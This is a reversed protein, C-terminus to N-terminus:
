NIGYKLLIKSYTGNKKMERLCKDFSELFKKKNKVRKSKKSITIFYDKSGIDYDLIKFKGQVNLKKSKWQFTAKSDATIDFRQYKGLLGKFLQKLSYAYYIEKKKKKDNIIKFLEPTFTLGDLYGFKLPGLDKLSKIKINSDSKVMFRYETRFLSEKSYILFDERKKRYSYICIDIVGKRIYINARKIPYRHFEFKIGNKRLCTEIIERGIGMPMEKDGGFFYPPWDANDIVISESSNASESIQLILFLIFCFLSIRTKM